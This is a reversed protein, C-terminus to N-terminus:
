GKRQIRQEVPSEPEAEGDELEAMMWLDVARARVMYMLEGYMMGAERRWATLPDMQAYGQLGIGEELRELATLHETWLDDITALLLRRGLEKYEEGWREIGRALCEVAEGQAAGQFDSPRLGDLDFPAHFHAELARELEAPDKFMSCLDAALERVLSEPDFGEGHVLTRRWGYIAERQVHVVLDYKLVEGRIALNEEEVKKQLERLTRLVATSQVPEEAPHGQAALQRRIDDVALKGFHQWLKDELSILFQSSGPDGQRGARGRLQNDIRESEHHSTGIVHLGGANVVAEREGPEGEPTGGLVIDVGRGAMNTSITVAGKRGAQAILEAEQHHNKANLLQHPVAGQSLLEGLRESEAVSTTGVLVPRGLGQMEEIEAVAAQLKHDVNDFVLDEFDQRAAPRNTPVKIVRLGYTQKMEERASWATGTMGGLKKYRGFFTQYTVKALTRDEGKIEVGEKAELAQHLGDAFRKDESVRGTFEDVIFIRGDQVLYDVDRQYVGHALVAQRVAHYLALNDPETLSGCGLAEQVRELGQDSLTATRTKEEVYFHMGPDLRRAVRDVQAYLGTEEGSPGSIILPTRAEDILLFDVEDVLAYNFGRHAVEDPEAALNDRLYDFALEHNTGYTVDCAYAARRAEVEAAPDGMDELILGVTLGLMNYVPSMWRSDREALYDNVTVVHVGGGSLANLCAALPAVLTKGEGTKMEAVCGDNLAMGGLLQVDYHRMGLARRSAERVMAFTEPLLRELEEGARARRRLEASQEGLQRDSRNKLQEELRQIAGLSRRYRALRWAPPGGFLINIWSM